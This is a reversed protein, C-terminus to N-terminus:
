RPAGPFFANARRIYDAYQPRREGIEEKLLAVGSVRMLLVWMLIPGTISWSAVAFYPQNRATIYISLQLFGRAPQDTAIWTCFAAVAIKALGGIHVHAPFVANAYSRPM